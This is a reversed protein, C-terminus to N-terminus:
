KLPTPIVDDFIYDHIQKTTAEKDFPLYWVGNIMEGGDKYYGDVPFREQEIVINPSMLIESGIKLIETKSLSTEVLPLLESVLSPYKTIGASQIKELLLALVIRQRDTREFDGNGVNRIRSYSLAQMGNLTQLGPNKVYTPKTKRYSNLESIYLNIQSIEDRKVDIELGGLIDIVKEMNYFNISAYDKINLKYNKNLTKIALSPGGFAYAHNLKDKGHGDINIYSDRMISLMKIKNRDQDITLIMTADSRSPENPERQDLGFFAINLIEHKQKEKLEEITSEEIGLDENTKSIENTKVKNLSNIVYFCVMGIIFLFIFILVMFFIKKKKSTKKEDESM